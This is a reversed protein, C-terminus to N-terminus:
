LLSALRSDVMSNKTLAVEENTFLEKYFVISMRGLFAEGIKFLFIFVLILVALKIGHNKFFDALPEWATVTLWTTMRQFKSQGRKAYGAEIERQLSERETIPETVFCTTIM